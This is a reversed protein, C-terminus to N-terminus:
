DEIVSDGPESDANGWSFLLLGAQTAGALRLKRWEIERAPPTKGPQSEASVTTKGRTERSGTANRDVPHQRRYGQYSRCSGTRLLCQLRVRQPVEEM